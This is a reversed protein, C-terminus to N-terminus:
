RKSQALAIAVQGLAICADNTPVQHHVYVEFGEGKLLSWTHSLLFQNQWVGGSIVVKNTKHQKRLSLSCVLSVQAIANHFKTSILALPLGEHLDDLIQPILAVQNIVEKDVPIKYFDQVEANTIQELAVAGQAEYSVTHYLGLLSSVADFLRGMSSTLPSNFGQQIQATITRAKEAGLFEAPLFHEEQDAASIGAELLYALAMRAPERVALDGGPQPVPKLHFAREFGRCNGVLIEGGWITGDCGFGTGDYTLGIVTEEPDLSNDVMCAALHAHHHQVQILPLSQSTAFDQAYRTSLYDPHLDCCILEPKIRYLSQDHAVAREYATLTELNQLDGLHHSLFARGQRALCFTSKLEAGTGLVQPGNPVKIPLTSLGRARRIPYEGIEDLALVQTLSDDIAHHIPRNHMLFGDAIASLKSIAEEETYCIPEESLNGSTAVLLDPFGPAPELLLLHLPTYALMLALRNQDPAVYSLVQEGPGTPQLLVIPAAPSQLLCTEAESPSVYPTVAELNFGMVALPKGSRHKRQRLRAVADPNTADCFLHFGGLGKVAVIKGAQIYERALRIADEDKAVHDSGVQFWVHPGCTSCAIPQAHFRRDAPDHYERSCEPCLEFEAMTTNPRDYPIVKIISYRPGCHTCNIFPYRFRRNEPDFLEQKCDECIALDSLVPLFEESNDASSRIEFTDYQHDPLTSVEFREM